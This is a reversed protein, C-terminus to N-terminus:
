SGFSATDSKSRKTKSKRRPEDEGDRPKSKKKSFFDTQLFKKTDRASERRQEDGKRRKVSAHPQYNKM